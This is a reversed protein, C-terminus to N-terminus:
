MADGMDPFLDGQFHGYSPGPEFSDDDDEEDDVGDGDDGDVLRDAKLPFPESRTRPRTTNSSPIGLRRAFKKVTSPKPYTQSSYQDVMGHRLMVTPVSSSIPAPRILPILESDRLPMPGYYFIAKRQQSCRLLRIRDKNAFRLRPATRWAKKRGPGAKWSEVFERPMHDNSLLGVDDNTNGLTLIEDHHAHGQHLAVSCIKPRYEFVRALRLHFPRAVKKVKAWTGCNWSDDLRWNEEYLRQSALKRYSQTGPKDDIVGPDLSVCDLIYDFIESWSWLEERLERFHDGFHHEWRLSRETSPVFRADPSASRRRASKKALLVAYSHLMSANPGPNGYQYITRDTEPQARYKSLQVRRNLPALAM